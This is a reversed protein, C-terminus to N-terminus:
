PTTHILKSRGEGGPSHNLCSGPFDDIGNHGRLVPPWRGLQGLREPPPLPREVPWGPVMPMEDQDPFDPDGPPPLAPQQMGQQEADGDQASQTGARHQRTGPKRGSSWRQDTSRFVQQSSNNKFNGPHDLGPSLEKEAHVVAVPAVYHGAPRERYREEANQHDVLQPM